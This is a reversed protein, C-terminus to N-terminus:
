ARAVHLTYTVAVKGTEKVKILVDTLSDAAGITIAGSQVTSTLTQVVVGGVEVTCTGAAFTATVKIWTSATNVNINYTRTAQAFNPVFDLAAGTNEEIGSLVTINNSATVSLTPKGSVKITAAFPIKDGIPLGIGPAKTVFGNFSFTATIATPFTITYAVLADSEMDTNFLAIQGNTDGAIFNGELSIEGGDKLGPIFEQYGSASDHSTAEVSGRTVDIGNIATLEAIANGARAFVAGKGIIASTTM